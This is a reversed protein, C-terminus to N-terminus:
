IKYGCLFRAKLSRWFKHLQQSLTKSSDTATSSASADPPCTVVTVGSVTEAMILFEAQDKPTVQVQGEKQLDLHVSETEEWAGDESQGWDEERLEEWQDDTSQGWVRPEPEELDDGDLEEVWAQQDDEQEEEERNEASDGEHCCAM